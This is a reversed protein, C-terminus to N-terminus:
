IFPPWTRKQDQQDKQIKIKANKETDFRLGKQNIFHVGRLILSAAAFCALLSDKSKDMWGDM